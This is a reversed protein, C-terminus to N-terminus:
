PNVTNVPHRPRATFPRARGVAPGATGGKKIGAGPRHRTNDVPGTHACGRTTGGSGTRGAPCRFRTTETDASKRRSPPSRREPCCGRARVTGPDSGATSPAVRGTWAKRYRWTQWVVGRRSMRNVAGLLEPTLRSVVVVIQSAGAAILLRAQFEILTVGSIPLTAALTDHRDSADATAFLLGALM